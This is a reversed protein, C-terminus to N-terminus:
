LRPKTIFVGRLSEASGPFKEEFNKKKKELEFHELVNM